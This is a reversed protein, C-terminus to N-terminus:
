PIAKMCYYYSPYLSKCCIEGNNGPCPNGSASCTALDEKSDLGKCGGFLSREHDSFSDSTAGDEIPGNDGLEVLLQRQQFSDNGDCSEYVPITYYLIIIIINCHLTAIFLNM